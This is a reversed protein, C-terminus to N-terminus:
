AAETFHLGRARAWRLSLADLLEAVVADAQHGRGIRMAQISLTTRLMDIYGAQDRMDPDAEIAAKFRALAEGPEIM